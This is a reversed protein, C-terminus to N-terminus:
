ESSPPIMSIDTGQQLEEPVSVVVGATKVRKRGPRGSGSDKESDQATVTGAATNPQANKRTSRRTSKAGGFRTARTTYCDLSSTAPIPSPPVASSVNFSISDALGTYNIRSLVYNIIIM